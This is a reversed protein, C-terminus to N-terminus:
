IKEYYIIMVVNVRIVWASLKSMSTNSVIQQNGASHEFDYKTVSILYFELLM